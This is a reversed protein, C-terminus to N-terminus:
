ERPLLKFLVIGDFVNTKSSIYEVFDIRVVGNASGAHRLMVKGDVLSLVGVHGLEVDSGIKNKIVDLKKVSPLFGVVMVREKILLQQLALMSKPSVIKDSAVYQLQLKEVKINVTKKHVTSLFAARNIVIDRKSIYSKDFANATVDKFIKGHKLLYDAMMFHRRHEVDVMGDYYRLNKMNSKFEDFSNAKALATLTEIYTTCDFADFRYVYDEGLAPTIYKKGIFLDAYKDFREVFSAGRIENMKAKVLRDNCCSACSSLFLFLVFLIRM